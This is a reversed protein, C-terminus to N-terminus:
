DGLQITNEIRRFLFMFSVRTFTSGLFSERISFVICSPAKFFYSNPLIIGTIWLMKAIGVYSIILDNIITERKYVM